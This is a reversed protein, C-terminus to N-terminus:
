KRPMTTPYTKEPGRHRRDRCRCHQGLTASHAAFLSWAAAHGYTFWWTICSSFGSLLASFLKNSSCDSGCRASSLEHM